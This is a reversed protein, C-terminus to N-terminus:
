KAKPKAKAEKKAKFAKYIKNWEAIVEKTVDVQPGAKVYLVTERQLVIDIGKRGAVVKVAELFRDQSKQVIQQAEYQMKEQASKIEVERKSQLERAQMQLKEVREKLHAKTANQMQEGLAQLEKDIGQIGSEYKQRLDMIDKQLDKSEDADAVDTASVVGVVVQKASLAAVQSKLSAVEQDLSVKPAEACASGVVSALLLSLSLFKKM